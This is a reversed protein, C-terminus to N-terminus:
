AESEAQQMERVRVIGRTNALVRGRSGPQAASEKIGQTSYRGSVM